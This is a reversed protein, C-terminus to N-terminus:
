RHIWNKMSSCRLNATRHLFSQASNLYFRCPGPFRGYRLCPFVCRPVSAYKKKSSHSSYSLTLLFAGDWMRPSKIVKAHAWPKHEWILLIKGNEARFYEHFAPILAAASLKTRLVRFSYNWVEWPSRQPLNKRQFSLQCNKVLKFSSLKRMLCILNQPICPVYESEAYFVAYSSAPCVPFYLTSFNQIEPVKSWWDLSIFNWTYIPVWPLILQSRYKLLVSTRKRGRPRSWSTHGSFCKKTGNVFQSRFFSTSM